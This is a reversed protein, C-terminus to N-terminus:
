LQLGGIEDKALTAGTSIGTIAEIYKRTFTSGCRPFSFLGFYNGDIDSTDLAHITDEWVWKITELDSPNTSKLANFYSNLNVTRAESNPM